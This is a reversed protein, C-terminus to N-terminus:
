CLIGLKLLRARRLDNLHGAMRVECIAAAENGKRGSLNLAISEYGWASFTERHLDWVWVGGWWGHVFLLPRQNATVCSEPLPKTSARNM